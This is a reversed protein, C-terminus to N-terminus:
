RRELLTAGRIRHNTSRWISIAGRFIWRENDYPPRIEDLWVLYGGPAIVTAAQQIVLKKQLPKFRIYGPLQLEHEGERAHAETGLGVLVGARTSKQYRPWHKAAPERCLGCVPTLATMSERWYRRQDPLRYPPDALVLDFVPPAHLNSPTALAIVRELEHADGVYDPKAAASAPHLANDFRIQVPRAHQTWTTDAKQGFKTANLMAVARYGEEANRWAADVQAATLSGSFLHLIRRADPFLSLAGDLYLKPYAGYLTSKNRYDNGGMWTAYMTEGGVASKALVFGAGHAVREPFARAFIDARWHLGPRM